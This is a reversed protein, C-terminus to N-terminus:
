DKEIWNGDNDQIVEILLADEFNEGGWEEATMTEFDHIWEEKSAISGTYPNMLYITTM